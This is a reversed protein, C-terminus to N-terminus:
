KPVTGTPMMAVLYRLRKLKMSQTLPLVPPTHLLVLLLVPVVQQQQTTTHHHLVYLYNFRVYHIIYAVM